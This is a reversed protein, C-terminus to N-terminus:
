SLVHVARMPSISSGITGRIGPFRLRYQGTGTPRTRYTVRGLGSTTHTEISRWQRAGSPRWQLTVQAGAQPTGTDVRILRGSVRVADGRHVRRSSVASSLRSAPQVVISRNFVNDDVGPSTTGASVTLTMTHPRRPAQWSSSLTVSGRCGTGSLFCTSDIGDLWNGGFRMTADVLHSGPVKAEVPARLTYSRGATVLYGDRVQRGNATIPGALEAGDAVVYRLRTSAVSQYSTHVTVKATHWGPTLGRDTTLWLEGSLTWVGPVYGSGGAYPYSSSLYQTGDVAYDFNVVSPDDPQGLDAPADSPLEAQWQLGVPDSGVNLQQLGESDDFSVLPPPGIYVLRTMDTQHAPDPYASLNGDTDQAVAYVTAQQPVQGLESADLTLAYPPTNDFQYGKQGAVYFRVGALPAAGPETSPAADVAFTTQGWIAQGFSPSTFRVTPTPNHLYITHNFVDVTGDLDGVEFVLGAHDADVDDYILATPVIMSVHCTAGAVCASTDFSERGISITGYEPDQQQWTVTASTVQTGDAPAPLDLAIPMQAHVDDGITFVVRSGYDSEFAGAPGAVGTFGALACGAVLLVRLLMWSHNHRRRPLGTM